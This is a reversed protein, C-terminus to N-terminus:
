SCIFAELLRFTLLRELVAGGGRTSPSSDSLDVTITSCSPLIRPASTLDVSFLGTQAAEAPKRETARPAVQTEPSRAGTQAQATPNGPYSRQVFRTSIKQHKQERVKGIIQRSPPLTLQPLTEGGSGSTKEEAQRRSSSSSDAILDPNPQKLPFLLWGRLRTPKQTKPLASTLLHASPRPYM